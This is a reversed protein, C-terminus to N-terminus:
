GLLPGCLVGGVLHGVVLTQRALDLDERVDVHVRDVTVTAPAPEASPEGTLRVHQGVIPLDDILPPPRTEGPLGGGKIIDPNYLRSKTRHPGVDLDPPSIGGSGADCLGTTCRDIVRTKPVRSGPEFGPPVVRIM